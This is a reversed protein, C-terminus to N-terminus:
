LLLFIFVYSLVQHQIPAELSKGVEGGWGGRSRQKKWLSLSLLKDELHPGFSTPLM